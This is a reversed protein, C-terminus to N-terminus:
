LGQRMRCLLMPTACASLASGIMQPVAAAREDAVLAVVVADVVVVVKPSCRCNRRNHRPSAAADTTLAGPAHSAGTPAATSPAPGDPRAAANTYDALDVTGSPHSRGVWTIFTRGTPAVIASAALAPADTAISSAALALAGSLNCM